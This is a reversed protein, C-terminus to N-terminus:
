ALYGHERGRAIASVRDDVGLKAYMHELHKHVTRESIGLLHGVRRATAGTAIGQLVQQERRTLAVVGSAPLGHDAREPRTATPVLHRLTAAVRESVDLLSLVHHRSEDHRTAVVARPGHPVLLPVCAIGPVSGFRALSAPGISVARNSAIAELASRPSDVWVARDPCKRWVPLASAHRWRDSMSESMTFKEDALSDAYLARSPALHHDAGLLAVLGDTFLEVVRLSEWRVPTWLFAADVRGELVAQDGGHGAVDVLVLRVHPHIERYAALIPTTLEAALPTLAGVRFPGGGRAQPTTAVNDPQRRASNSPRAPATTGAAVATDLSTM